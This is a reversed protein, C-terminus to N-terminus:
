IQFDTISVALDVIVLPIVKGTHTHHAGTEKCDRCSLVNLKSLNFHAISSSYMLGIWSCLSELNLFISAPLARQVLIHYLAGYVQHTISKEVFHVLKMTSLSVFSLFFVFSLIHVFLFFKSASDSSKKLFTYSLIYTLSRM